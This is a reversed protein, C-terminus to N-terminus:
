ANPLDQLQFKDIRPEFTPYQAAEYLVIQHNPNYFNILYDHLLQIGKKNDHSIAHGLMGIIGVQWLILHNTPDPKRKCILLDTAEILQCGRVGFDILLDAFLCDVASIGPLVKAYYGSKKALIVADLAPQAFVTPHGYLVVCVHQKQKLNEFIYETIKRYNHLRLPHQTYLPDLSETNPNTRQIWEQMAPENVLYLVKEANEIHVKAELTLHSMFKIGSGVVILSCNKQDTKTIM